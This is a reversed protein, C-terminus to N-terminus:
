EISIRRYQSYVLISHEGIVYVTVVHGGSNSLAVVYYAYHSMVIYLASPLGIM